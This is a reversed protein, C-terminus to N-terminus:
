IMSLGLMILIFPLILWVCVVDIIGLVIGAIAMGNKGEKANGIAGLVIAIIGLWWFIFLGIIGLILAIISLPKSDAM